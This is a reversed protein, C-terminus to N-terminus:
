KTEAPLNELKEVLDVTCSFAGGAKRMLLLGVLAILVCRFTNSDHM